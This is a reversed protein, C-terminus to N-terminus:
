QDDKDKNEEEKESGETFGLSASNICYRKGTPQPGDDFVHGLHSGCRSCQIEIRKMFYSDDVVLEVSDSSIVEYFSPWGSSSDFKNKSSFIKQGCAACSYVGPKDNRLLEGTFPIETKKERLIAYQEPTLLKKWEEESRNIKQKM